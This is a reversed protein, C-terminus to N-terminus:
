DVADLEADRPTLLVSVVTIEQLQNHVEDSLPNDQFNVESLSSIAKLRNINVEKIRNKEANFKRLADFRYVVPPVVDFENHSIDLSALGSVQRLEDPLSNLHNSSLNLDTLNSFKIALKAPLRRLVNASLNCVEVELAANRMLMFVADPVHVLECESLDLRKSEKAQECRNVVKTVGVGAM